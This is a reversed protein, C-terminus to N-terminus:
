LTVSSLQIRSESVEAKTLVLRQLWDLRVTNAHFAPYTCLGALISCSYNKKWNEIRHLEKNERLFTEEPVTPPALAALMAEIDLETPQRDDM